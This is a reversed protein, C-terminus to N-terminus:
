KSRELDRVLEVIQRKLDACVVDFTEGTLPKLAICPQKNWLASVTYPDKTEIWRLIEPTMKWNKGKIGFWFPTVESAKDRWNNQDYILSCCYDNINMYRSYGAKRPSGKLNDTSATISMDSVMINAVEELMEPFRDVNETQDISLDGERFFASVAHYALDNKLGDRMRGARREVFELEKQIWYFYEDADKPLPVTKKLSCDKQWFVVRSYDESVCDQLYFFDVFGKFDNFLAFFQRDRELTDSLPSKEDNYFRRICEMTLDWRDKIYINMGRMGNMNNQHTPFIIYGGITSARKLYDEIYVGYDPVRAAVEKKLEIGKKDKYRFSTTMSDSGFSFDRWCLYKNKENRLELVEGNPLEKSWLIRHYRRMTMSNQDADKGGADTRVDFSTDVLDAKNVTHYTPSHSETDRRFDIITKEKMEHSTEAAPPLGCEARLADYRKREKEKVPKEPDNMTHHIVDADKLVEDMPTDVSAKDDHHYIASCIIDTEEASTLELKGLIERALDAGKHAHDEYSGATYAYMDHLMAAMCALETDQGRKESIMGAALSVGYLHVYAKKLEDPDDIAKRLATDTYKRLKKLRGM